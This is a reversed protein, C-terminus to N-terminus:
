ADQNMLRSSEESRGLQLLRRLLLLASGFSYNSRGPSLVSTKNESADTQKNTQTIVPSVSNKNYHITVLVAIATAMVSVAHVTLSKIIM